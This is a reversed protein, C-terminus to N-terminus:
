SHTHQHHIAWDVRLTNAPLSLIPTVAKVRVNMKRTNRKGERRRHLYDRPVRHRYFQHNLYTDLSRQVTLARRVKSALLHLQSLCSLM